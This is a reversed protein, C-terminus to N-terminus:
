FTMLVWTAANLQHKDGLRQAHAGKLETGRCNHHYPGIVWHSRPFDSLTLADGASRKEGVALSMNLNEHIITIIYIRNMRGIANSLIQM